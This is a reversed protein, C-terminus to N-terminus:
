LGEAVAVEKCIRWHFARSGEQLADLVEQTLMDEVLIADKAVAFVIDYPILDLMPAGQMCVYDNLDLSNIHGSSGRLNKAQLGATNSLAECSKM